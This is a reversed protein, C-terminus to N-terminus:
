KSVREHFVDLPDNHNEEHRQAKTTSTSLGHCNCFCKGVPKLHKGPPFPDGIWPALGRPQQGGGPPHLLDRELEVGFALHRRHGFLSISVPEPSPRSALGGM